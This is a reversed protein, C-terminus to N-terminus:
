DAKSSNNQGSMFLRKFPFLVKGDERFPYDKGIECLVEREFEAQESEKSLSDLYPKM